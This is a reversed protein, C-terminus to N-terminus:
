RPPRGTAQKKEADSLLMKFDARDRLIDLDHSTSLVLVDGYGTAVAKHLWAMARDAEDKALQGTRPDAPISKTLVAATVARCVAAQYLSEEDTREQKEWLEATVRCQEANKAKAFYRLRLDAVEAFFRSVRKGVARKLCDDLLPV